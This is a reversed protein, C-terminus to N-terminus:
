RRRWPCTDYTTREPPGRLLLSEDGYHIANHTNLSTCILYEPDLLFESSHYIDDLTIPNMHHVILTGQIERDLIGLDCGSDRIIVDNRISKWLDSKLFKNRIYSNSGFTEDGVVGCLKLYRYREEFTPLKILESYTKITSNKMMLNDKIRALLGPRM